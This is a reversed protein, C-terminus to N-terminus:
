KQDAQFKIQVIENTEVPTPEWKARSVADSAAKVLLPSGGLQETGVPYGAPSVTVRLRVVGSLNVKRALSPYVPRIEVIIKRKGESHVQQALSGLPFAVQTVALGLLFIQLWYGKLM